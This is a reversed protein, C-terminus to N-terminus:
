VDLLRQEVASARTACDRMYRECREAAAEARSAVTDSVIGGESLGARSSKSGVRVLGRVSEMDNTLQRHAQQAAALQAQLGRHNEDLLKRSASGHTELRSELDRHSKGM